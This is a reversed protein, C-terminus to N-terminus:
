FIASQMLFIKLNPSLASSTNVLIDPEKSLPVQFFFM